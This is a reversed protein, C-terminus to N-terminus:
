EESEDTSPEESAEEAPAEEAPAEEAPAEEAPAEEAPAEEAPAEAEAEPEHTAVDAEPEPADKGILGQEAIQGLQVALGSILGNLGRVLGTLPSAVVGVLQANLTDRGPLRAIAKIEDVSLPNGDMVGGKFQFTELERTFENLAKAAAAADGRVFAFATPGDLLEKLGDAGAKDAARQTLSNKVIRFTTDADRLKARLEAAQPVSTGRYDVAIVADAETIQAAIEDVVAAKQDKNM